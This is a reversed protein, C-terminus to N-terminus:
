VYRGGTSRGGWLDAVERSTQDLRDAITDLGDAIRVAAAAHLEMRSQWARYATQYADATQGAWREALGANVQHFGTVEFNVAEACQRFVRAADRLRDYDMQFRWTPSDGSVSADSM